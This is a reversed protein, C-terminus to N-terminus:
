VLFLNHYVLFCFELFDRGEQEERRWRQREEERTSLGYRELVLDIGSKAEGEM